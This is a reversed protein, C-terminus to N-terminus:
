RSRHTPCQHAQVGRLTARLTSVVRLCASRASGAAPWDRTGGASERFALRAEAGPDTQATACGASGALARVAGQKTISMSSTNECISVSEFISFRTAIAVRTAVRPVAGFF